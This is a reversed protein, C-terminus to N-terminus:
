YVKKMLKLNITACFTTTGCSVVLNPKDKLLLSIKFSKCNKSLRIRFISASFKVRSLPLLQSQIGALGKYSILYRHMLYMVAILAAELQTDSYILGCLLEEHIHAM